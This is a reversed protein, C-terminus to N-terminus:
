DLRLELFAVGRTSAAVDYSVILDVKPQQKGLNAEAWGLDTKAFDSTFKLTEQLTIQLPNGPFRFTQM